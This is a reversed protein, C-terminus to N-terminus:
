SPTGWKSAFYAQLDTKEQVTMSGALVIEGIGGDFDGGPNEGGITINDTTVNVANTDATDETNDRFALLNTGTRRFGVMQTNTDRTFTLTNVSFSTNHIARIANSGLFNFGVWGNTSSNKARMPWVYNTTDDELVFYSNNDNQGFASDFSFNELSDSGDFDLVNLSNITRTGSSPRRRSTSQSLTYGNTSKDTVATVAGSSTTITATDSFDYWAILNTLSLPTFADSGMTILNGNLYGKTILNGNLYAKKSNLLM